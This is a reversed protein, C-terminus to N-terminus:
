DKDPISPIHFDWLTIRPPQEKERRADLKQPVISLSMSTDDMEGDNPLVHIM